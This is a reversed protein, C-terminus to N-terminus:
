KPHEWIFDFTILIADAFLKVYEIIKENLDFHRKVYKSWLSQIDSYGWRKKECGEDWTHGDIVTNLM